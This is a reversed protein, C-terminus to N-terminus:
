RWGHSVRCWVCVCVCSVRCVCVRCVRARCLSPLALPVGDLLEYILVFNKRIHDEDFKGGFYSRFILVLQNLLSFVLACDVNQKTAALLYIDGSRVHLLSTGSISSIPSRVEKANIVQLRFTDAV